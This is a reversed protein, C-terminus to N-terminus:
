RFLNWARLRIAREDTKTPRYKVYRAQVPRPAYYEFGPWRSYSDTQNRNARVFPEWTEGDVSTEIVWNEPVAREDAWVIRCRSLPIERPLKLTMELKERATVAKSEYSRGETPYGSM